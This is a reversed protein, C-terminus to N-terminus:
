AIAAHSKEKAVARVAAKRMAQAQQTRVKYAIGHKRELWGASKFLPLGAEEPTRLNRALKVKRKHATASV